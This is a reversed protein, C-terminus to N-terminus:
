ENELIEEMEENIKESAEEVSIDGSWAKAIYDDMVKTWKSTDKSVPYPEAYEVADLFVQLNFEPTSDLWADQTGEYTSILGGDAQILAAEESALFEVFKKSAKKNKSKSSVVNGLGHIVNSRKKIKPLVTVDAFERTNENSRFQPVYYSPYYIMAVKESEFMSVPKTTEMQAHTPSVKYEHILDYYNKIAEVTNPDSFGSEKKDKSIVYGENAFIMNWYAAQGSQMFAAIGYIGEDTENTIIQANKVLDEWTWSEDPYDLGVEDFIDKNFWLGNTDFDRPIAYIEDEYKYLEMLAEPYKTLDIDGSEIMDDLPEIMENDAYKVFNPGNMWFVDPLSGGSAAADLKTFYQDYPTLELKVEINPYDENFKKVQGKIIDEQKEDWYAYTITTDDSLSGEDGDSSCATLAVVCIISVAILIKKYM